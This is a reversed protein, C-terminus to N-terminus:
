MVRKAGIYYTGWYGTYLPNVFVGKSKTASIFQGDGIYIGVHFVTKGRAFFVLDGPQPESVESGASAYMEASTRPLDIGYQRYVYGVYGSCDFGKPTTGGWVYRTGSYAFATDLLQSANSQPESPPEPKPAYWAPAHYKGDADMIAIGNDNDWQVKIGFAESIDRIPVYVLGNVYRAATDLKVSKRDVIMDPEDTKLVVKRGSKELIVTVESGDAGWYVKCGLQDAILRVPVLVSGTEDIFPQADPFVMLQDNVQVKVGYSSSADGAYAKAEGAYAGACAFVLGALLAKRFSLAM